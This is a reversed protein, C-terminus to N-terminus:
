ELWQRSRDSVIYCMICLLYKSFVLFIIILYLLCVKSWTSMMNGYFSVRIDKAWSFDKGVQCWSNSWDCDHQHRVAFEWSCVGMRRFSHLCHLSLLLMRMRRRLTPLCVGGLLLGLGPLSIAMRVYPKEGVEYPCRLKQRCFPVIWGPAGWRLVRCVALLTVQILCSSQPAPGNYLPGVPPERTLCSRGECVPPVRARARDRCAAGAPNRVPLVRAVSKLSPDGSRGAPLSCLVRGSAARARGWSGGFRGGRRRWGAVPLDEARRGRLRPDAARGSAAPADRGPWGRGEGRRGGGGAMLPAQRRM